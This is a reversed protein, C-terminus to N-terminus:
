FNADLKTFIRANSLQALTEDVAPLPHFERMVSENFMDICIRVKGSPKLVVVIGACCLSSGDVKSEIGLSEM